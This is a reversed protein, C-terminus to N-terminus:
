VEGNPLVEKPPASKYTNSVPELLFTKPKFCWQGFGNGDVPLQKYGLEHMKKVYQPAVQIFGQKRGHGCCSGITVVGKKMNLDYIEDQLCTDCDIPKLGSQVSRIIQVNCRHEGIPSDVCCADNRLHALTRQDRTNLWDQSKIYETITEALLLQENWM